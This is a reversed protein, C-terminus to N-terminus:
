IVKLVRKEEIRISQLLEAARGLGLYDNSSFDIFCRDKESIRMERFTGAQHRRALIEKMWRERQQSSVQCMDGAGILNSKM